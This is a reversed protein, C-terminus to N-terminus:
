SCGQKGAGRTEDPALNQLGQKYVRVNRLHMHKPAPWQTDAVGLKLDFDHIEAPQRRQLLNVFGIECETRRDLHCPALLRKAGHIEICIQGNGLRCNRCAGMAHPQHAGNAGVGM